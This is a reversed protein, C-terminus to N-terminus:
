HFTKSIRGSSSRSPALRVPGAILAARGSELRKARTRHQAFPREPSEDGEDQREEGTRDEKMLCEEEPVEVKQRKGLPHAQDLEDVRRANGEPVGVQM